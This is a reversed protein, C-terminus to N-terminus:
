NDRKRVNARYPGVACTNDSLQARDVQKRRGHRRAPYTRASASNPTKSALFCIGRM